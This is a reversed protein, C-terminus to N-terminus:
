ADREEERLLKFSSGHDRMRGFLHIPWVSNWVQFQNRAVNKSGGRPQGKRVVLRVAQLASLDHAIEAPCIVHSRCQGCLRSSWAGLAEYCAEGDSQTARPQFSGRRLARRGSCVM